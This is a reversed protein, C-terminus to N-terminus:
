SYNALTVAQGSVGGGSGGPEQDACEEGNASRHRGPLGRGSSTSSLAARRRARLERLGTRLIWNGRSRRQIAYCWSRALPWAGPRLVRALEGFIAARAPNLNFIGNVLAVDISGSRLPLREAAALAFATNRANATRSASRARRLMSQSFDVGYVGGTVGVRRAAILSDLGAGCGLDLVTDGASLEAFVAVNSVGTFADVSCEPIGELLDEPVRLEARFRAGGPVRAGAGSARVGRFLGGL